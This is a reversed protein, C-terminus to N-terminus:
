WSPAEGYAKFEIAYLLAPLHERFDRGYLLGVFEFCCVSNRLYTRSLREKLHAARLEFALQQSPEQRCQVKLNSAIPGNSSFRWGEGEKGLRTESQSVRAAQWLPAAQDGTSEKVVADSSIYFSVGPLANMQVTYHTGQIGVWGEEM